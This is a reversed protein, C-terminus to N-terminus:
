FQFITQTSITQTSITQTQTVGNYTIEIIQSGTLPNIIFTKTNINYNLNAVHKCDGNNLVIEFKSTKLFGNMILMDGSANLSPKNKSFIYDKWYAEAQIIPTSGTPYSHLWRVSDTTLSKHFEKDITLQNYLIDSHQISVASDAVDQFIFLKGKFNNVSERTRRAYYDNIFSSRPSGIIPDLLAGESNNFYWSTSNDYGFDSIGFNDIINVFQDPFCSACVLSLAGGASYGCICAKQKSCVNYNSKIYKLLDWIIHANRGNAYNTGQETSIACVFYGYSAFRHMCTTDFVTYDNGWGHLLFLIPINGTYGIDYSYKVAYNKNELTNNISLANDCYSHTASGQINEIKPKTKLSLLINIM